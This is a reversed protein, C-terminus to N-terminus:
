LLGGEDGAVIELFDADAFFTDSSSLLLTVPDSALPGVDLGNDREGALLLCAVSEFILPVLSLFNVISGFSDSADLSFVESSM